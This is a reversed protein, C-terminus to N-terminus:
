PCRGRSLVHGTATRGSLGLAGKEAPGQGRGVRPTACAKRWLVTWIATSADRLAHVMGINNMSRCRSRIPKQFVMGVGGRVTDYTSPCLHTDAIPNLM